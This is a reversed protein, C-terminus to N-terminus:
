DRPSPSTYLLCNEFDADKLQSCVVTKNNISDLFNKGEQEEQQQSQIATSSPSSNSFDMMGQAFSPTPFVLVFAFIFPTIFLLKKM